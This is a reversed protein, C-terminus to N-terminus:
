AGELDLDPLQAVGAQLWLLARENHATEYEAELDATALAVEQWADSVKTGRRTLSLFEEARAQNLELRAKSETELIRRAEENDM